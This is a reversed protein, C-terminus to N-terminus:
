QVILMVTLWAVLVPVVAPVVIKEMIWKFTLEQKEPIEKGHELVAVRTVLSNLVGTLKEERDCIDHIDNKIEEQYAQVTALVANFKNLSNTLEILMDNQLSGSTRPPTM